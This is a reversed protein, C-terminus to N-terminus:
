NLVWSLDNNKHPTIIIIIIVISYCVSAVLLVRVEGGEQGFTIAHPNGMSVCTMLWTKGDVDLPAKVVEGQPALKTPIQPAELIPPGMDVCVQTAYHIILVFIIWLFSYLSATPSCSPVQCEWSQIQSQLVIGYLVVTHFNCVQGDERLELIMHGALTLVKYSRVWFARSNLSSLLMSLHWLLPHFALSLDGTHFSFRSIGGPHQHRSLTLLISPSVAFEMAVCRSAFLVCNHSACRQNCKKVLFFEINDGLGLWIVLANDVILVGCGIFIM